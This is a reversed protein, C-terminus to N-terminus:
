LHSQPTATPQKYTISPTATFVQLAGIALAGCARQAGRQRESRERRGERASRAGKDPRESARAVAVATKLYDDGGSVGRKFVIDSEEIQL